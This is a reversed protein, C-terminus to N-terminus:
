RHKCSIDVDQLEDPSAARQWKRLEALLADVDSADYVQEGNNLSLREDIVGNERVLHARGDMWIEYKRLTDM